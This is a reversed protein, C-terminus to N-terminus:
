IEKILWEYRDTEGVGVTASHLGLERRINIVSYGEDMYSDTQNDFAKMMAWQAEEKTKYGDCSVIEKNENTCILVFAGLKEKAM